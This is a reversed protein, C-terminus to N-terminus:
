GSLDRHCTLVQDVLPQGICGLVVAVNVERDRPEVLEHAAMHGVPCGAAPLAFAIRLRTAGAPPGAGTTRPWSRLGRKALHLVPHLVPHLKLSVPPYGSVRFHSQFAM